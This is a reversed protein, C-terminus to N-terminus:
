WGKEMELDEPEISNQIVKNVEDQKSQDAAEPTLPGDDSYSSSKTGIQSSKVTLLKILRALAKGNNVTVVAEPNGTFDTLLDKDADTGVAFAIKISYKFWKNQKLKELSSEFGPNPYGDSILFIVPAFSLSPSQLFGNRSMKENLMEFAMGMDTWGDASLRKWEFEEVSIPRDYVWDVDTNFTLVAVKVEADSGGVNRIEPITEEMVTNVTGIKTGQMSGSTDILYFLVLNKRAIPESDLLNSDDPM